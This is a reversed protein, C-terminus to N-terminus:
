ELVENLEGVDGPNLTGAAAKMLLTNVVYTYRANALDRQAQFLTRQALVVDVINRTGLQAGTETSDLASAASELAQQRAAVTVVDTQVARWANRIDQEATREVQQLVYESANRNYLAERARATNLGGAYLPVRVSLSVNAGQSATNAFFSYPNSSEANYNYQAGLSLTPYQAAKVSKVNAKSAEFDMRAARVSPSNEMTLTEWEALDFPVPAIVGFGPGLDELSAVPQGVILQLAERRQALNNEEVLRNVRALDHNSRSQLVDTVTNLGVDFSQESQELIRAAAEEEAIFSRLNEQSRLVDFYAQALRLILQQENLALTALAQQDGHKVAEFAYWAEFNLLNQSLNLGYGHSNFGTGYSYELAPAQANRATNGQLTVSPLLQSRGQAIRTHTADFRARAEAIFPDRQQALDFLEQLDAANAQSGVGATLSAWLLGLALRTNRWPRHQQQVFTTHSTNSGQLNTLPQQTAAPIPM